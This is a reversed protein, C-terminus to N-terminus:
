YAGSGESLMNGYWNKKQGAYQDQAAVRQESAAVASPDIYKEDGASFWSGPRNLLRAPYEGTPTQSAWNSATGTAPDVGGIQAWKWSDMEGTDRNQSWDARSTEAMRIQLLRQLAPMNQMALTNQQIQNRMNEQRTLEETELQQRMRMSEVLAPQMLNAQMGQQMSSLPVGLRNAQNMSQSIASQYAQNLGTMSQQAIRNKAAKGIDGVALRGADLAGGQGILRQDQSAGVMGQMAMMNQLQALMSEQETEEGIRQHSVAGYETDRDPSQSSGSMLGGLLPAAISALAPWTAGM